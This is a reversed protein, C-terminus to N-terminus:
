QECMFIEVSVTIRSVQQEAAPKFIDSVSGADEAPQKEGDAAAEEADTEGAANEKEQVALDASLVNEAEALVTATSFEAATISIAPYHKSIDDLLAMMDEKAGEATCTVRASYVGGDASKTEEAAEPTMGKNAAYQYWALDSKADPMTVSMNQIKLNHNLMLVTMMNEAEQSQLVPYFRQLVLSMKSKTNEEKKVMDDALSAAMDMALEQDKTTLIERELQANKQSLPKFVGFVFLVLVLFAALYSLLRKDSETIIMNM